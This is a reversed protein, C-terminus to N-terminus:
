PTSQFKLLIESGSYLALLKKTPRVADYKLAELTWYLLAAFYHIGNPDADSCLTRAKQRVLGILRYAQNASPAEERRPPANLPEYALGYGISDREANRWQTMWATDLDYFGNAKQETGMLVLKIDREILALDSVLRGNPKYDGCDILRVDLPVNPDQPDNSPLLCNRPNPDGHTHGLLVFCATALWAPRQFVLLNLAQERETWGIQDGVCMM